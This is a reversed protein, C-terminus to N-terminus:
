QVEVVEGYPATQNRGTSVWLVPFAPPEARHSGELDTLYVLCALEDDLGEAADLAPAFMTGGGGKANFTVVDGREFTDIGHVRADCYIVHIRAPALEDAITQVESQFQELMVSDVSGSTDIAVAIAGMNESRLAPLYLGRAVYRSSPRKWSYDDTAVQQVFRRLVARWDVRSKAADKVLRDVGAGGEGRGKAAVAAQQVAQKWAEESGNEDANAPADMVDARGGGQPQGQGQQPQGQGQGQGPQPQGQGQQGDDKPQGKPLRDYIWEASKGAWQADFLMDVTNFGADRLLGALAYDCAVNWQKPERGDRRWAHGMACHATEEAILGVLEDHPIKEVYEPNYFLHTGDTAGMPVTDTAVPELRLALVGWFPQDLVLATRAATVKQAATTM